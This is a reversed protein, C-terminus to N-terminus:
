SPYDLHREHRVLAPSTRCSSSLGMGTGQPETTFFAEFVRELMEAPLGVGSDRVSVHLQGDKSRSSTVYLEGPDGKMARLAM